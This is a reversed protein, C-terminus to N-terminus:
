DGNIVGAVFNIRKELTKMKVGQMKYKVKDTLDYLYYTYLTGTNVGGAVGTTSGYSSTEYDFLYRSDKPPTETNREVLVYDYPFNAKLLNALEQNALRTNEDNQEFKKLTKAKYHSWFEDSYQDMYLPETYFIIASSGDYAFDSHNTKDFGEKWESNAQGFVSSFSIMWMLFFYWYKM